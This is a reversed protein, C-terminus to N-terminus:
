PFKLELPNQTFDPLEGLKEIFAIAAERMFIGSDEVAEIKAFLKDGGLNGNAIFSSTSVRYTKHEELPAKGIMINEAKGLAFNMTGSLGAYQFGDLGDSGSCIFDLMKKVEEGKMTFTVVTNDYPLAEFVKGCTINSGSIGARIGGSNVLCIDAKGADKMAAATFSGMPLLKTDKLDKPYDLEFQSHGAIKAMKAELQGHYHAVLREVEPVSELEVSADIKELRGSFTAIKGSDDLSIDVIGLFIGHEGSQAVITGNLGNDFGPQSNSVLQPAYVETHTHGGIIVDIENIAAAMELDLEYGSHSLVVILDVYPRIKAAFHRVMETQPRAFLPAKTKVDVSEWAEDGISGIVGINKGNRAFIRYPEFVPKGTNRYFVNCCLLRIGSIQLKELLNEISLDLEHNGLTTAEYGMAAAIRYCAEGKFFNFFPTGQFMDGADLVLAEPTQRKIKKILSARRLVGSVDDGHSKSNVPVIRAHTDNSHILRVTTEAQVAICGLLLFLVLATIRNKM